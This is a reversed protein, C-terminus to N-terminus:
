LNKRFEKLSKLFTENIDYDPVKYSEEKPITVNSNPTTGKLLEESLTDEFVCVSSNIHHLNCVVGM